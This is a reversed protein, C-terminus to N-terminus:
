IVHYYHTGFSVVIECFLSVFFCQHFEILYHFIMLVIDVCFWVEDFTWLICFDSDNIILCFQFFTIKFWCIRTSILNNFLFFFFEFVLVLSTHILTWEVFFLSVGIYAMLGVLIQIDWECEIVFSCPFITFCLHVVWLVRVDKVCVVLFFFRLLLHSLVVSRFPTQSVAWHCHFIVCSCFM